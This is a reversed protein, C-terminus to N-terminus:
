GVLIVGVIFVFKDGGLWKLLLGGVERVLVVVMLVGLFVLGGWILLIFGMISIVYGVSYKFVFFVFISKVVVVGGKVNLGKGFM